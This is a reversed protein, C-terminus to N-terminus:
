WAFDSQDSKTCIPPSKHVRKRKICEIHNIPKQWIAFDGKDAIKKWCLRRAADEISDQEQKLDEQTREWGKWHKKWNIPPGSLIWYGGPRLVRDVETLYLGDVRVCTINQNLEGWVDILFCTSLKM